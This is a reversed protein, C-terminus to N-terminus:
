SCLSCNFNVVVLGHQESTMEATKRSSSLLSSQQIHAVGDGELNPQKTAGAVIQHYKTVTHAQPSRLKGSDAKTSSKSTTAENMHLKHVKGTGQTSNMAVMEENRHASSETCNPISTEYNQLIAKKKAPSKMSGDSDTHHESLEQEVFRSPRKRNRKRAFKPVDDEDTTM